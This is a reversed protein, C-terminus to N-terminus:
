AAFPLEEAGGLVVQIKAKPFVALKRRARELMSAAPDLLIVQTASHRRCVEATLDGTGAACDLVVQGPRLDLARICRRRWRVDLRLSFLRNLFDYTPSLTEFMRVVEEDPGRERGALEQTGTTSTTFHPLSM